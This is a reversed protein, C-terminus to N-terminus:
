AASRRPKRRAPADPKPDSLENTRPAVPTLPRGLLEEYVGLYKKRENEWRHQHYCRTAAEIRVSTAAPDKVVAAIRSALDAPNDPDYYAVADDPFYSATSALRSAVVPRELAMYEFMKNTHVLDSYPNRKQAVICVDAALIEEVMQDFPVFGLYHVRDRVGLDSALALLEDLYGGKGLFRFQVGPFEECLRPLARVITDNGYREEIAGHTFIRIVGRRRDEAKVAAVRARLHEYLDLRFLRDDPVNLVVTVKGVNSGHSAFADKMERTVTTARDAFAISVRQAFTILSVFPVLYWRRFMTGFLEPMPEHLHLVVRSGTLRPVLACFVLYDPMTHVQVVRLRHRVHLWMLLISALMFFANYEYLYRLIRGRRHRVPLRYVRVGDIVERAPEDHDRLCIVHSQFGSAQLADAERKVKLEYPYYYCHRVFAVNGHAASM